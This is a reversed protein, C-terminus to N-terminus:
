CVLIPRDTWRLVKDTASGLVTGSLAGCGRAALAVLHMSHERAYDLIAFAPHQPVMIRRNM